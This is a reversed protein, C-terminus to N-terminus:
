SKFPNPDISPDTFLKIWLESLKGQEKARVLFKACLDDIGPSTQSEGEYIIDLEKAIIFRQELSLSFFAQVIKMGPKMNNTFDPIAPILGNSLENKDRKLRELLNENKTKVKLPEGLEPKVKIWEGKLRKILNEKQESSTLNYYLFGQLPEPIFKSDDTDFIIPIFKNNKGSAQYLENYLLISEFIVGKGKGEEEKGHCRRLYVETALVLVFDSERVNDAMWKPFGNQPNGAEIYQDLQCDIYHSCLENAFNLVLEDFIDGLRAYSIFVKPIDNTM